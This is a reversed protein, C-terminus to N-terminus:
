WERRRRGLLGLFGLMLLLVRSPEPIVVLIGHSDFLSSDWGLGGTLAELMLNDPLNFNGGAMGSLSTGDKTSTTSWDLLNFISSIALGSPSNLAVAIRKDTTGSSGLILTGAASIYDHAGTAPTDNWNGITGAGGNVGAVYDAATLSPNNNFWAAFSSDIQDAATVGLQIQATNALTVSSTVSTFTLTQNSAAADGVGPALLAGDGIITSGAISGSGSLRTGTNSVTVVGSGGLSGTTGDGVQFTGGTVHTAGLYTNAASVVLRGPGAKNLPACDHGSIVGNITLVNTGTVDFVAGAGDLSVTQNTGLAVNAGTSQLTAADRITLTNGSSDAGLAASNNISIMGQNIVTGGLYTSAGSLFLTRAGEKIIGGNAIAVEIGADSGPENAGVQNTQVTITRVAGGLDLTGASGPSQNGTIEIFSPSNGSAARNNNFVIDGNVVLTGGNLLIKSGSSTNSTLTLEVRGVTETFGALNWNAFANTADNLLSVTATDAIQENAANTLLVAGTAASSDLFIGGTGIVNVGGANGLTLSGANVVTLGTHTSATNGALTLTGAGLKTFQSDGALLLDTATVNAGNTNVFGGGTNFTFTRGGLDDAFGGAVQFTGGAFNVPTAAGIKDTDDIQLTGFNLYVASFANGSAAGLVLTGAGSKVLPVASTLASNVTLSGAPNTVYFIYDRGGGTTLGTFGDMVHAGTNAALVAGATIELSTAPGTLTIASSSDIVLSNIATAASTLPAAPNAAFRVNDTVAGTLANFGAEDTAYEATTLARLSARPTSTAGSADMVFSNGYNNFLNNDGAPVNEGVLWPFISITTSAAAGGGGVAANAGSPDNDLLFQGRNGSTNGLNQGVILATGRNTGRSLNDAQLQVIRSTSSGANTDVQIRNDGFGLTILGVNENRTADQNENRMWLGRTGATSHLTIPAGNGIRDITGANTDQDMLLESSILTYSSANELKGFRNQLHLRGGNVIVAGTFSSDGDLALSDDGSKVFTGAGSFTGAFILAELATTDLDTQNITLTAGSNIIVSGRGDLGGDLRGITETQGATLELAATDDALIFVPATDSLASGGTVRLVGENIFVSGTLNGSGSLLLEGDGSKSLSAALIRSSIELLGLGNTNHQHISLGDASTSALTGGTITSANVGVNATVLIGGGAVILSEGGAITVTSPATADFTLSNIVNCDTVIGTFAASNIVNDAASWATVDNKTTTTAGIVAGGSIALFQSQNVTAWGGLFATDATTTTVGGLAPLNINLTGNTRELTGAALTLAAGNSTMHIRGAGYGATIDGVNETQANTAHGTMTILGNEDRANTGGLSLTGTSLRQEGGGANATYDLIIEGNITNNGTYSNNGSLTVVGRTTKTLASSGSLNASITGHRLNLGGTTALTNSRGGGTNTINGDLLTNLNSVVGMTVANVSSNFGQLDLTSGAAATKSADDEILLDDMGATGTADVLAGDVGITVLSGGRIFIDDARFANVANLHVTALLADNDNGIILDDGLTNGLAGSGSITLTGDNINFDDAVDIQGTVTWSGTGNKTLDRSSSALATGISVNGSLLGTGDGDLILGIDPTGTVGVDGTVTLDIAASTSDNAIFSRTAAGLNLGAAITSGLPNNTNDFIVNGALTIVGGGATDLINATASTDAGSLTLAGPLVFSKGNVDFAATAGTSASVVVAGGGTFTANSGLQLTGANVTTDGLYSNAGDLILTGPGQKVLALNNENAGAGGVAGAFTTNGSQIITLISNAAGGGVIANATGTGATALSAITTDSAGNTGDGLQLIGSTTGGGLTLTTDTPLRNNAGGELVLRGDVLTTGGTYTAVGAAGSFIVTGASTGDGNITLHTTGIGAIANTFILNSGLAVNWAQSAGLRFPSNITVTGPGGTTIEVGDTAVQPAVELRNSAFGGPNITVSTPTPNAGASAEFTLSNIKFNQELTTVLAGGAHSDAVFIVDTGQGPITAGPTTGAKDTSWNNVNGNWTNDTLGTWYLNGTILSGTTISILTDSVNLTISTFGGPTGGLIWDSIGLNGTTLGSTASLLNYTQGPNLNTDTLNFTVQNGTFLAPVGTLTIFDTNVNDGATDGDGVNLNLFSMTGSASGLTLSSLGSLKNGTGDMLSLTSQDGVSLTTVAAPTTFGGAFRLTSAGSVSLHTSGNLSGGLILTGATVSTTGTYTLPGEVTASGGGTKLLNLNNENTGAGGIGGAFTYTGSTNITLLSNAANGGVIANATGTGSTALVDFTQNSVGTGDGLQIIGSDTGNGLTVVGATNLRDNVGGALVMRGQRVGIGGTVGVASGAGSIVMSGAGTKAFGGTGSIAGAVTLEATSGTSDDVNFLRNVGGLTIAGSLTAGAGNNTGDYRIGGKDATAQTLTVPVSLSVDRLVLADDLPAFIIGNTVDRGDLTLLATDQITGSFYNFQSATISGQTSDGSAQHQLDLTGGDLTIFAGSRDHDVKLIDGAVTFTGGTINLDGRATGQTGSNDSWDGLTVDGFVDFVGGQMNLTGQGITTAISTSTSRQMRGILVSIASIDNSASSGTTFTGTAGGTGGNGSSRDKDGIELNEIRALLTGGTMDFAGTAVTGTDSNRQDGVHLNVTAGTVGNLNLTGGSAITVIGTSKRGGVVFTPVQVTNTGSGFVISSTVGGQGVASSDGVLIENGVHLNSNTGIMLDGESTTGSGGTNGGTTVGLRLNNVQANFDTVGTLNLLGRTLVTTTASDTTRYGINLDPQFQDFGVRLSGGTQTIEAERQNIGIQFAGGIENAGAFFSVTSAPNTATLPTTQSGGFTLGDRFDFAASLTVNWTNNFRLDGHGGITGSFTTTQGEPANLTGQGIGTALIQDFPITEGATSGSLDLTTSTALRLTRGAVAGGLQAVSGVSVTGQTINLSGTFTNVGTLNLTPAGWKTFSTANAGNDAIVASITVAQGAGADNGTRLVLENGAFPGGTLTGNSITKATTPTLALIGGADVTLTGGNLDLDVGDGLIVSNVAQSGVNTIPGTAINVNDTAAWTSADAATQYTTLATVSTDFNGGAVLDGSITAWDDGVVAFGGVGGEALIGNKLLVTAPNTANSPGIQIRGKTNVGLAGDIARFRVVAGPTRTLSNGFNNGQNFFLVSTNTGGTQYDNSILNVGAELVMTGVRESYNTGSSNNDDFLFEGGRFTVAMGDPLRNTNTSGGSTNLIAFTGGEIIIGGASDWDAGGSLRLLGQQVTATGTFTSDVVFGLRSGGSKLLHLKGTSATVTDQLVINSDVDATQNVGFTADQIGGNSVFGFNQALVQGMYVNRENLRLRATATNGQAAFRINNRSFPNLAQDSDLRLIGRNISIEGTIASFGSLVLESDNNSATLTLGANAGTNLMGSTITTTIPTAPSAGALYFIAENTGFELTGGSITVGAASSDLFAGSTIEFVRGNQLTLSSGTDMRLANVGARFNVGTAGSLLVNEDSIVGVAISTAYEGVALPRIGTAPDVTVFSEGSGTVSTGNGVGWPIISINTSGAAGGGGIFSTGTPATTVILRATDAAAALGFGTGRFLLTGKNSRILSGTTVEMQGGSVPNLTFINHGSNTELSGFTETTTNVTDNAGFIVAEGADQLEIQNADGIRDMAFVTDTLTGVELRSDSSGVVVTGSNVLAGNGTLRLIGANITTTGGYTNAATFTLTNSGSKVINIVNAGTGASSGAIVGAWTADAVSNNITFNRATTGGDTRDMLGAGELSRITETNNQNFLFTGGADIQLTSTDSIANTGTTTRLTAGSAVTITSATSSGINVNGIQVEGAQINWGGTNTATTNILLTGDGLKNIAGTGALAVGITASIGSDVTIDGSTLTLTAGTGTLSYGNAAFLLSNAVDGATLTIAGVGAGNFQVDDAALPEVGLSWNTGTAWLLDTAGSWITTAGQACSMGTLAILVAARRACARKRLNSLLTKM